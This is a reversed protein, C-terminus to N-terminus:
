LGFEHPITPVDHNRIRVAERRTHSARLTDNYKLHGDNEFARREWVQARLQQTHKVRDM